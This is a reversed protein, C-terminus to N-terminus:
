YIFKEIMSLPVFTFIILKIKEEKQLGFLHFISNECKRRKQKGIDLTWVCQYFKKEEKKKREGERGRKRKRGKRRNCVFM